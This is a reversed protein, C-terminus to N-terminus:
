LLEYLQAYMYLFKNKITEMTFSTIYIDDIVNKIDIMKEKCLLIVPKIKNLRSVYINDAENITLAYYNRFFRYLNDILSIAYNIYNVDYEKATEIYITFQTITRVLDTCSTCFQKEMKQKEM